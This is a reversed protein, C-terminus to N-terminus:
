ALNATYASIMLLAWFAISFTFLRAPGTQPDFEFQGAFATAFMWMTEVPDLRTKRRDTDPDLRELLWYLISSIVVTVLVMIWVARDFPALWGWPDFSDEEASDSQIAVMIITADYWPETFTTGAQLRAVSRMWWDATLDYVDTTWLLLDLFSRDDPLDEYSPAAYTNRWRCGARACLEDLLAPVLGPYDTALTRNTVRTPDAADNYELEWQVFEGQMLATHLDVGQLADGLTVEQLVLVRQALDCFDNRFSLVDDDDNHVAIDSSPFELLPLELAPNPAEQANAVGLFRM